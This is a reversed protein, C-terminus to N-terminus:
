ESKFRKEYSKLLADLVDLETRRILASIMAESDLVDTQITQTKSDTTMTIYSFLSEFIATKLLIEEDSPADLWDGPEEAIDQLSIRMQEDTKDASM